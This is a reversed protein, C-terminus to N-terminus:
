WEGAYLTYYPEGLWCTWAFHLEILQRVHLLDHAAWAAFMDGARIRHGFPADVAAEWDPEGLSELWALSDQRESLFGELNEALDRQNYGRKEVWGSPDIPSWDREPEHLIIGLRVRFDEREEDYLHCVVELISWTELNPKWRAQEETVGEVLSQIRRANHAMNQKLLSHNM